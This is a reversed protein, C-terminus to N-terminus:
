ERGTESTAETPVSRIPPPEADIRDSIIRFGAALAFLVGGIALGLIWAKSRASSPREAAKQMGGAFSLIKGLQDLYREAADKREPKRMGERYRALAFDTRRLRLCEQIFQQHLGDSGYRADVGTWLHELRRAIQAGDLDPDDARVERIQVAPPPQDPLRALQIFSHLFEADTDQDHELHVLMSDASTRAVAGAFAITYGGYATWEVVVRARFNLPHPTRVLIGRTSAQELRGPKSSGNLAMVSVRLLRHAFDVAQRDPRPSLDTSAFLNQTPQVESQFVEFAERPSLDPMPPRNSEDSPAM